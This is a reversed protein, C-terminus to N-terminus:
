KSSDTERFQEVDEIAQKLIESYNLAQQKTLIMTSEYKVYGDVWINKTLRLRKCLGNWLDKWFWDFEQIWDNSIDYRKPVAETWYDTKEITYTHITIGFDEEAEVWLNQEIGCGCTCYVTYSKATGFDKNLLIGEAPLQANM